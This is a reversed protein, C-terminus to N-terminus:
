GLHKIIRLREFLTDSLVNFCAVINGYTGEREAGM